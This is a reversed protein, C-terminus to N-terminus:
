KKLNRESFFHAPPSWHYSVSLTEMRTSSHKRHDEMVMKMATPYGEIERIDSMILTKILYNDENYYDIVLPANDSKRAWLILRPYPPDQDSIGLLEVQWCPEGQKQAEGLLHSHYRTIFVDGGGM